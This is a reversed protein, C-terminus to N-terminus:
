QVGSIVRLGPEKSLCALCREGLYGVALLEILRGGGEAQITVVLDAPPLFGSGCEPWEVLVLSDGDFYDRIGMYELEEPDTLRYLDFHYVKRAELEYPEVLTYTPSKVAGQHGLAQILGRALTTKGMGLDGSLYVVTGARLCRSLSLGLALMAVEDVAGLLLSTSASLETM